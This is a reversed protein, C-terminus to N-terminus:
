EGVLNSHNYWWDPALFLHGIILFSVSDVEDMTYM